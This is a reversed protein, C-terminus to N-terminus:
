APAQAGPITGFGVADNRFADWLEGPQIDQNITRPQGNVLITKGVNAGYWKQWETVDAPRVSGWIGTPIQGATTTAMSSGGSQAGGAAGGATGGATGAAPNWTGSTGMSITPNVGWYSRTPAQTAPTQATSATGGAKALQQMRYIQQLEELQPLMPGWRGRFVDEGPEPAEGPQLVRQGGIEVGTTPNYTIDKLDRWEGTQPDQYQAQHSDPDYRRGGGLNLWAM